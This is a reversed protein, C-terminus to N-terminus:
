VHARGIQLYKVVYPNDVLIDGQKSLPNVIFTNNERALKAATTFASHYLLAIIFDCTKVEEKKFLEKVKESDDHEVDYVHLVVSHGRAELKKLGLLIGEYFQIFEFSKYDKKRRQDIDFKSTSIMNLEKLYFPMMLVVHVEQKSKRPRIVIKGDWEDGLATQEEVFQLSDIKEFDAKTVDKLRPIKIIQGEKLVATDLEPNVAKMDQESINYRRTLSYLTEGKKVEYYNFYIDVMPIVEEKTPIWVTDGIQLKDIDTKITAEQYRVGYARTISFLTQGKEVVHIVYNKGDVVQKVESKKIEVPTKQAHLGFTYVFLSLLLILRKYSM